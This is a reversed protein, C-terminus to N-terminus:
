CNGSTSASETSLSQGCEEPVDNFSQCTADKYAEANRAVNRLFVDNLVFSPSGTIGLERARNSASQILQSGESSLCSLIKDSDM